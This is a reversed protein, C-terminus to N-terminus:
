LMDLQIIVCCTDYVSKLVLLLTYGFDSSLLVKNSDYPTTDSWKHERSSASISPIPLPVSELDEDANSPRDELSRGKGCYPSDEYFIDMGGARDHVKNSVEGVLVGNETSSSGILDTSRLKVDGHKGVLGPNPNNTFKFEPPLSKISQFAPLVTSAQSM